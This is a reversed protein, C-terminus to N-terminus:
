VHISSPGNNKRPLAVPFLELGWLDLNITSGDVYRANWRPEFDERNCKFARKFPTHQMSIRCVCQQWYSSVEDHLPLSLKEEVIPCWWFPDILSTRPCYGWLLDKTHIPAHLWCFSNDGCFTSSSRCTTRFSHPSMGASDRCCRTTPIGQCRAVM